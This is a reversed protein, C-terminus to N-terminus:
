VIPVTFPTAFALQLQEVVRRVSRAIKSSKKSNQMVTLLAAGLLGTNLLTILTTDTGTDALVATTAVVPIPTVKVPTTPTTIVDGLVSGCSTNTDTFTWSTDTEEPFVFGENATATVTNKGNVWGTQEYTVGTVTPISLTDNNPGCVVTVSPALPTVEEDEDTMPCDDRSLEQGTDYALVYSRDQADSFWGPITGDWQNHEISSISVSIPNKGDKLREDVGPTGVYKCVLVKCPTDTDTFEWTTVAGESFVYGEDATATVTKVNGEWSSTEYTVGDVDPILITDNKPGCVVTVSPALPTVETDEDGAPCKPEPQGTDEAIVYSRGQADNFYSGVGAYDKIANVSVSIPNDGTQLREDEGPTGVYKCVFVKKEPVVLTEEENVQRQALSNNDLELAVLLTKPESPGNEASALGSNEQNASDPLDTPVQSLVEDKSTSQEDDNKQESVVVKEEALSNAAADSEEQLSLQPNNETAAFVHSSALPVCATAVVYAVLFTLSVLGSTVRSTLRRLPVTSLITKM